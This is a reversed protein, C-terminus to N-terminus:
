SVVNITIWIDESNGLEDEVTFWVKYTNRQAMRNIVFRTGVVGSETLTSTNVYCEIGLPVIKTLFYVTTNKLIKIDFNIEFTDGIRAEIYDTPYEVIFSKNEGGIVKKEVEKLAKEELPKRLFFFAGVIILFIILLILIRKDM